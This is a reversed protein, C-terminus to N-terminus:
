SMSSRVAASARRMMERLSFSSRVGFAKQIVNLTDVNPNSQNPLNDGDLFYLKLSIHKLININRISLISSIVKWNKIQFQLVFQFVLMYFIVIEM